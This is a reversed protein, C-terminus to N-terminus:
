PQAHSADTKLGSEEERISPLCVKDVILCGGGGPM